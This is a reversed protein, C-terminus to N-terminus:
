ELVALISEIAIKLFFIFLFILFFFVVGSAHM